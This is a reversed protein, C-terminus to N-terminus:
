TRIEYTCHGELTSKASGPVFVMGMTGLTISCMEEIMDKYSAYLSQIQKFAKSRGITMEILCGVSVLNELISKRLYTSDSIGLYAAIEKTTRASAYCYKM